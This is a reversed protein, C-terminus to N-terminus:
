NKVKQKGPIGKTELVNEVTLDEMKEYQKDAQEQSVGHVSLFDSVVRIFQVPINLENAEKVYPYCEWCEINTNDVIVSKGKRLCDIAREANKKHYEELLSPVFRYSNGHYFYYDTACIVSNPISDRLICALNTKGSGSPGQLIYLVQM